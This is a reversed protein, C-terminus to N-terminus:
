LQYKMMDKYLDMWKEFMECFRYFNDREEAKKRAQEEFFAKAM